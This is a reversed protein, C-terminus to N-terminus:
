CVVGCAGRVLVVVFMQWKNKIGVAFTVRLHTSAEAPNSVFSNRDESTGGARNATASRTTPRSLRAPNGEVPREMMFTLEVRCARRQHHGDGHRNTGLHQELRM